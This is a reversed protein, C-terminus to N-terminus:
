ATAKVRMGLMQKCRPYNQCGWFDHRGGTGLRPLMKIGCSPCTPTSYDGEIAFALLKQQQAKTLRKIMTVLMDGNILIIRNSGAFTKAEETFNGSAMFFAKELKEHAMVGLLERVPKVGVNREGWAKCQVISTPRGMEDQYLRIDIGGDPGLPTTESRIGKVAYFQQCVDEFRKWELARLLEVSWETPKATATAPEAKWAESIRENKLKTALSPDPNSSLAIDSAGWTKNSRKPATKPTSTSKKERAFSILGIFFFVGSFLWALGSMMNALPKTAANSAIMTPIIWKLMVLVIVGIGINIWWPAKILLEIPSEQSKRHRAM